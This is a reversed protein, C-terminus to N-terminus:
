VKKNFYVDRLDRMDNDPVRKSLFDQITKVGQLQSLIFHLCYMGCESEGRQHQFRVINHKPEVNINKLQNSLSGILTSIEDPPPMGYSDMYNIEGEPIRLYMSVWHEGGKYHPDTNFIFGIKEVGAAHSDRLNLKCLDEWVCKGGDLRHAFDIPSPGVFRFEPYAHEAQRMVATIEDSSLWTSPKKTWSKPQAPAFTYMTVEPPLGEKAFNQRLWCAETKCASGLRAKLHQWIESPEETKINSEPHRKNWLARLKKLNPPSYCTGRTRRKGVACSRQSYRGGRNTKRKTQRPM